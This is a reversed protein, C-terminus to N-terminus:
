MEAFGGDRGPGRDVAHEERWGRDEEPSQTANGKNRTACTDTKSDPGDSVRGGVCCGWNEEREEVQKPTL